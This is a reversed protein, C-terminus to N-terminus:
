KLTRFDVMEIYCVISSGGPIIEVSPDKESYITLYSYALYAPIVLVRKGGRKMDAVGENLGKMYKQNPRAGARVVSQYAPIGKYTNTWKEGTEYIYGVMQITVADGDKPSEGKGITIDKYLLGSEKKTLDKLFDESFKGNHKTWYDDSEKAEELELACVKQLTFPILSAVSISAFVPKSIFDRRELSMQCLNKTNKNLIRSTRLSLSSISFGMIDSFLNFLLLSQLIKSM